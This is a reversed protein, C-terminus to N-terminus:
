PDEPSQRLKNQNTYLLTDASRLGVALLSLRLGYRHELNVRYLLNTSEKGNNLFFVGRREAWV